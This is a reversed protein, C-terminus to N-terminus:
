FELRVLTIGTGGLRIDEDQFKSVVDVTTLYQRIVQRLVGNGKGHLIRLDMEGLMIAEDVFAQTREIAEDARLGRVDLNPSFELRRRELDYFTSSVSGTTKSGSASQFDKETIIEIDGPTVTTIMEGISLLISGSDIKLVEGVTGQKTIKVKYGPLLQLSKDVESLEKPVAPKIGSVKRVQDQKKKYQNVLHDLKEEKQDLGKEVSQLFSNLQKRALKTKEKDAQHHRIDQITNEIRKNIQGILEQTNNRSKQIEDKREKEMEKILSEYYMLLEEMRKESKRINKRKNEWYRKDRSIDRLHKDFMITDTGVEKKAEELIADPLGIKRAIEFAFSSGPKGIELKFLPEFHQTDYLMAGNIIGPEHAAFHKLNSYHTTIVGYGGTAN